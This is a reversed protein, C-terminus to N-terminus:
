RPRLRQDAPRNATLDVKSLDRGFDLALKHPELRLGPKGRIENIPVVVRM